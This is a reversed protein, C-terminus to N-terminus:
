QYIAFLQFKRNNEFIGSALVIARKGNSSKIADCSECNEPNDPASYALTLRFVPTAANALYYTLIRKDLDIKPSSIDIKQNMTKARINQRFTEIDNGTITQVTESQEIILGYLKKIRNRDEETIIFNM